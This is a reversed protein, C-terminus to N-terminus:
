LGVKLCYRLLKMRVSFHRLDRCLDELDYRLYRIDEKRRLGEMYRACDPCHVPIDIGTKPWPQLDFSFKKCRMCSGIRKLKESWNM